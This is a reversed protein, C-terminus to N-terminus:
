RSRLESQRRRWGALPESVIRVQLPDTEWVIPSGEGNRPVAKIRYRVTLSERNGIVDDTLFLQEFFWPRNAGWHRLMEIEDLPVPIESGNVVFCEHIVFEELWAEKEADSRKDELEMSIWSCLSRDLGRVMETPCERAARNQPKVRGRVKKTFETWPLSRRWREQKDYLLKFRYAQDSMLETPDSGRSLSYLRKEVAHQDGAENRRLLALMADVRGIADDFIQDGVVWSLLLHGWPVDHMGVRWRGGVHRVAAMEEGSVVYLSSSRRELPPAPDPIRPYEVLDSAEPVGEALERGYRAAVMARLLDVKEALEIRRDM